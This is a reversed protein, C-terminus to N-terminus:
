LREAQPDGHLRGEREGRTEARADRPRKGQPTRTAVGARERGPTAGRGPPRREGRGGVTRDAAATGGRRRLRRRPVRFADRPALPAFAVEVLRVAVDPGYEGVGRAKHASHRAPLRLARGGLPAPQLHSGHQELLPADLQLHHLVVLALRERGVVRVRIGSVAGVVSRPRLPVAPRSASVRRAANLLFRRRVGGGGGVFGEGEAESRPADLRHVGDRLHLDGLGTLCLPVLGPLEERVGSSSGIGSRARDAAHPHRDGVRAGDARVDRRVIAYFGSQEGGRVREQARHAHARRVALADLRAAPVLVLLHLLEHLEHLKGDLIRPGPPVQLRRAELRRRTQHVEPATVRVEGEARVRM